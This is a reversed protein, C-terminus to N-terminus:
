SFDSVVADVIDEQLRFMEEKPKNKAGEFVEKHDYGALHLVGHALVRLLEEEYPEKFKEANDQIISPCVWIEGPITDDLPFALVDTAKNVGRFQENMKRITDEDSIVVNVERGALAPVRDSCVSGM